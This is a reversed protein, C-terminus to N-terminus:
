EKKSKVDPIFCHMLSVAHEQCVSLGEMTFVVAANCSEYACHEQAEPSSAEIIKIHLGSTTIKALTEDLTDKKPIDKKKKM